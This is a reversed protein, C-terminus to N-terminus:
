SIVFKLTFVFHFFNTIQINGFKEHKRYIYMSGFVGEYVM